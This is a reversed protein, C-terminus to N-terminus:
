VTCVLGFVSCIWRECEKKGREKGDNDNGFSNFYQVRGDLNDFFFIVLWSTILWFFARRCRISKERVFVCVCMCVSPARNIYKTNFIIFHAYLINCVLFFTEFFSCVTWHESNAFSNHLHNIVFLSHCAWTFYIIEKKRKLTRKKNTAWALHRNSILRILAIISHFTIRIWTNM